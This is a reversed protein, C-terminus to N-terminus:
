LSRIFEYFANVPERRLFILFLGISACVIFGFLLTYAGAVQSWNGLDFLLAYLSECKRRFAYGLEPQIFPLSLGWAGAIFLVLGVFRGLQLLAKQM